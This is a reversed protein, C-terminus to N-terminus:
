RIAAVAQATWQSFQASHFREWTNPFAQILQQLEAQRCALYAAAGPSVIMSSTFSAREPDHGWTGWTLFDRLLNCAVVADNLDGLLDQLGKVEGILDKAQPGLVERFFELTYRLGKSAIRLQHYRGLPVDAGTLWEGYARVEALRRYLTIPVIHRVRHPVPPGQESLTPRAGAGPTQLFEGFRQVFHAYRDSNLYSLMEERAWDRQRTWVALLADLEGQREPPLADLYRRIKEFFVDLDRVAGLARGTRRMGKVFPAM